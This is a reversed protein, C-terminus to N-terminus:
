GFILGSIEGVGQQNNCEVIDDSVATFDLEWSIDEIWEERSACSCEGGNWKWKRYWFWCSPNKKPRKTTRTNGDDSDSYYGSFSVDESVSTYINSLFDSFTDAYIKNFFVKGLVKCHTM